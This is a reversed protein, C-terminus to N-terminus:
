QYIVQKTIGSKNDNKQYIRFYDIYTFDELFDAGPFFKEELNFHCALEASCPYDFAEHKPDTLDIRMTSKGDIYTNLENEDWEFGITHYKEGWKQKTVGDDAYTYNFMHGNWYHPRWHHITHCIDYPIGFNEVIDYEILGTGETSTFGYACFGLTLGQKKAYKVRIECYGYKWAVSGQTSIRSGYYSTGDTYARQVLAGNKVSNADDVIKVQGESYEPQNLTPRLRWIDSLGNGNFEDAVMLKYGGILSYDGDYRGQRKYGNEFKGVKNFLSVLEKCGANVATASGQIYLKNGVVSITYDNGSDAKTSASTFYNSATRNTVGLVIERSAATENDDAIYLNVGALAILQERLWDAACREIYSATHPLVITYESLDVGAIEVKKITSNVASIYNLDKPIQLNEATCYNKIFYDLAMELSLDSSAAIIIDNGVSRIIFDCANNERYEKIEKSIAKSVEFNTDGVLIRSTYDGAETDPLYRTMASLETGINSVFGDIINRTKETAGDPRIITFAFDGNADLLSVGEEDTIEVEKKVKLAKQRITTADPIEFLGTKIDNAETIVEASLVFCDGAKMDIFPIKPFAINTVDKGLLAANGIVDQWVLCGNIYAGLLVGNAKKGKLIDTDISSVAKVITINGGSPDAFSLRGDTKATYILAEKKNGTFSFLVGNQALKDNGYTKINMQKTNFVSLSSARDDTVTYAYPVGKATGGSSDKFAEIARIARGTYGGDDAYVWKWPTKEYLSPATKSSIDASMSSTVAKSLYEVDGQATIVSPNMSLVIQQGGNKAGTPKKVNVMATGCGSCLLLVFSLAFAYIKKM